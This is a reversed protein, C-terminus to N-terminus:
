YPNPILKQFENNVVAEFNLFNEHIVCDLLQLVILSM